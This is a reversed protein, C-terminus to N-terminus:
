VGFDDQAEARLDLLGGLRRSGSLGIGVEAEASCHGHGRQDQTSRLSQLVTPELIRVPQRGGCKPGIGMAMAGLKDTEELATGVASAPAPSM